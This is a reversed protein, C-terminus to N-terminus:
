ALRERRYPRALAAVLAPLRAAEVAEDGRNERWHAVLSLLARRLPEPTHSAADGYGAVLDIEVGDAARGPAPPAEVFAIRGHEQAPSASYEGAGLTTAVDRADYVRIATVGRLPAVPVALMRQRMASAPWADFTMRWSQTIFFRRTFAELTLRASVILAALLEDEDSSDLRLWAKAEALSIPEVAPGSLLTLIM